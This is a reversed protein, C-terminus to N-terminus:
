SAFSNRSSLRAVFYRTRVNYLKIIMNIIKRYRKQFRGTYRGAPRLLKVHVMQKVHDWEFNQVWEFSSGWEEVPSVGFTGLDLADAEEEVAIGGGYNNPINQDSGAQRAPRTHEERAEDVSHQDQQGRHRHGRPQDPQDQQDRLRINSARVGTGYGGMNRVRQLEMAKANDTM